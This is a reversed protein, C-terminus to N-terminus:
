SYKSLFQNSFCIGIFGNAKLHKRLHWKFSHIHYLLQISKPVDNFMKPGIAAFSRSGYLTRSRLPRIYRDSRTTENEVYSFTLNSHIKDHICKYLLSTTNLFFMARIPLFDEVHETYMLNRNTLRDINYVNRLARNQTTQLSDIANDSASGWIPLMYHLHSEFLAIYIRKKIIKSVQHRLKWLVGSTNSLKVEIHAIHEHWKLHNDIILGLYKLTYVRQISLKLDDDQFPNLTIESVDETKVQQSTCIMYNTKSVNLKLKQNCLYQIIKEMDECIKREVPEQPDHINVLVCDDAYLFIKGNLKITSISNFFMLFLWPGIISGQVVGQSITATESIKSGVKVHQLRNTLYSHILEHANGRIGYLHLCEMLKETNVIDFAKQLDMSVLSVKKRKDIAQQIYQVLEIGAIETNCKPRFGFQYSYIIKTHDLTFNQLRKLLIKEIIKNYTTLMTVPRYDALNTRDGTKNLPIVLGIKFIDPYIGTSLMCNFLHTIIPALESCLEKITTTFVKDIGPASNKLTTITQTVEEVDTERLLISDKITISPTQFENSTTPIQDNLKTINSIFFKNFMNAVDLEDSVLENKENFISIIEQEKKRGLLLNIDRWILKTDKSDISRNIYKEKEIKIIEKLSRSAAHLKLKYGVNNKHSRTKQAIKDKKQIAEAIRSNYWACLPSQKISLKKSSTASSISTKTIDVLVNAIENPNYANLINSTQAALQFDNRLKSFDTSSSTIKRRSAIHKFNELKTVIMNHDSIHNEITYNKVISTSLFNSCVHDIIRGSKSRTTITNSIEYAYSHLMQVYRQSDLNDANGDLNVDGIIITDCEDTSIDAELDEMFPKFSIQLPQRYFCILRLIKTGIKTKFSIKEFTTSCKKMNYTALEKKIYLLLGGGSNKSDRCCKYLTYGALHYLNSPFKEKLKTEGFLIIDFRFKFKTLLLKIRDFKRINNIGGTNLQLINLGDNRFTKAFSNVCKFYHNQCSNM